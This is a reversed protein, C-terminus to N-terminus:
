EAALSKGEPAPPAPAIKRDTPPEADPKSAAEPAHELLSSAAAELAERLLRDSAGGATAPDVGVEVAIGVGAQDGAVHDLQRM